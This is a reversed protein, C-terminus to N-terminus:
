ELGNPLEKITIVDNKASYIGKSYYNNGNKYITGKFNRYYPLMEEMQLGAFHLKINKLIDKPNFPPIDTSWGTGIGSSGNILLLPM